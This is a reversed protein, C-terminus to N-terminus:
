QAPLLQAALTDAAWREWDDPPLSASGASRAIRVVEMAEAAARDPAGAHAYAAGNM